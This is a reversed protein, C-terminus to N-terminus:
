LSLPTSGGIVEKVLQMTKDANLGVKKPDVREFHIEINTIGRFDSYVTEQIDFVELDDRLYRRKRSSKGFEVKQGLDQLVYFIRDQGDQKLRLINPFGAFAHQLAHRWENRLVQFQEWWERNEAQTEPKSETKPESSAKTEKQPKEESKVMKFAIDKRFM